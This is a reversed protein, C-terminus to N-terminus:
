KSFIKGRLILNTDKAGAAFASAKWIFLDGNTLNFGLKGTDRTCQFALTENPGIDM